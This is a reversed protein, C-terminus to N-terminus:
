ASVKTTIGKMRYQLEAILRDVDNHGYVTYVEGGAEILRKQERKQHDELIGDVTKVEVAFMGVHPIMCVRDPVGARGTWKRTTGGLKEIETNLYTEVKNERKGM